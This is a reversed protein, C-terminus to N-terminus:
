SKPTDNEVETEIEKWKVEADDLYFDVIKLLYRKAKMREGDKRKRFSGDEERQSRLGWGFISFRNHCLWVPLHPNAPIREGKDTDFGNLYHDIHGKIENLGCANVGWVGYSTDHRIATLDILNYGDLRRGTFKNWPFQWPWTHFGRKDLYAKTMSYYATYGM